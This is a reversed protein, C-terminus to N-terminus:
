GWAGAGLMSYGADMKSKIIVDKLLSPVSFLFALVQIPRVNLQAQNTLTIHQGRRSPTQM